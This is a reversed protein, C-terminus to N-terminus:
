FQPSLSVISMVSSASSVDSAVTSSTSPRTSAMSSAVSVSGSAADGHEKHKKASSAAAMRQLHNLEEIHVNNSQLLDDLYKLMEIISKERRRLEALQLQRSLEQQSKAMARQLKAQQQQLKKDLKAENESYKVIHNQILDSQQEAAGLKLQNEEISQKLQKLRERHKFLSNTVKRFKNTYEMKAMELEDDGDDGGGSTGDGATLKHKYKANGRNLHRLSKYLLKLDKESRRIQADLTNGRDQLEQKTQAMKIMIYVQSQEGQEDGGGGGCTLTAYKAKLTNIKHACKTSEIKLAHLVSQKNKLETAQVKHVHGLEHLQKQLVLTVEIQRNEAIFIRATIEHLAAKMKNVNLKEQDHEVYLVTKRSEQAEIEEDISQNELAIESIKGLVVENKKVVGSKAKKANRLDDSFKKVQNNLDHQHKSQVELKGSLLAIRENLEIQEERTRKGSARSVRRELTQIQFDLSYLSENQKLSRKDLEAMKSILGKTTAKTGRMENAMLEQKQHLERMASQAKILQRKLNNEEKLIGALEAENESLLDEVSSTERETLKLNSKTAALENVKHSRKLKLQEMARLKNSAMKRLKVIEQALAKKEAAMKKNENETLMLENERQVLLRMSEGSQKRLKDMERQMKHISREVSREEKRQMGLIQEKQTMEMEEEAVANKAAEVAKAISIIEADREHITRVSEEWQAMMAVRAEHLRKFSSATNDLEVQIAKTETIETSLSDATAKHESCVRELEINLQKVKLEDSRKYGLLAIQDEEKQKAALQWQQLEESKWNMRLKFQEMKENLAFIANQQAMLTNEQELMAKNRAKNDNDLHQKEKLALVSLHQETSMEKRRAAVIERSHRLESEVNKLHETMVSIRNETESVSQTMKLLSEEKARLDAHLRKNEDNAFHPLGSGDADGDEADSDFNYSSGLSSSSSEDDDDEESSSHLQAQEEDASM